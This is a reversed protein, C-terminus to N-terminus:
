WCPFTEPPELGNPVVRARCLPCTDQDCDMWSDLCPRHFVHRCGSLLRTEDGGEFEHLCVACCEPPDALEEYLIVPLLDRVSDRAPKPKTKQPVIRIEVPAVDPELFDSLGASDFLLLVLTRLHGLFYLLHLFIGPAFVDSYGLPFGM